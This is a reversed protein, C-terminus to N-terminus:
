SSSPIPLPSEVAQLLREVVLEQDQPELEHHLPLSLATDDVLDANPFDGRASGARERYLRTLPVHYTGITSEVGAARLEAIVRRAQGREPVRVVYSQYTHTSGPMASPATVRSDDLLARYREAQARRAAVIADLKAMQSVGLAAQFDTLRLNYGAEVFEPGNAGPEQGHNRLSAVRDATAEDDTTVMGGEGTTIVKRPHFSFCAVDGLSGARRGHIHAGIACAADEVVKAGHRDAIAGIAEVDALGGFCHVPMVVKVPRRALVAELAAPDMNFTVPDIDVFVPAAGTLAAANATAPYSYAPVAVLDGAGVGLAVLALHLASTGSNVAVGHRTGVYDAVQREFLEANAGQVLSGSKLVRAVAELDSDDISPRALRIV